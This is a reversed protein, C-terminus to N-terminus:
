ASSTLSAGYSRQRLSILKGDGVASLKGHSPTDTVILVFASMETVLLNILYFLYLSEQLHHSRKVAKAAVLQHCSEEEIYTTSLVKNLLTQLVQSFNYKIAHYLPSESVQYISRVNYQLRWTNGLLTSM